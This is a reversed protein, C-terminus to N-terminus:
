IESVIKSTTATHQENKVVREEIGVQSVNMQAFFTNFQHTEKTHINTWPEDNHTHIFRGARKFEHFMARHYWNALDYFHVLTNNHSTIFEEFTGITLEYPPTDYKPSESLANNVLASILCLSLFM